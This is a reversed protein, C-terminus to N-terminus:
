WLLLQLTFSFFFHSFLFVVFFILFCFFLLFFSFRFTIPNSSILLHRFWHKRFLPTPTGQHSLPNLIQCQWLPPELGQEPAPEMGPGPVEAHCSCQWFYVFLHTMFLSLSTQLFLATTFNHNSQPLKLRVMDQQLYESCLQRLCKSIHSNILVLYSDQLEMFLVVTSITLLSNRSSKRKRNAWLKTQALCTITM